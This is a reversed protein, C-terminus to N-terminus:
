GEGMKASPLEFHGYHRLAAVYADLAQVPVRRSRGITVSELEGKAVLSYAVTRGISLCEAAEEITLLVKEM